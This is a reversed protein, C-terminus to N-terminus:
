QRAFNGVKSLAQTYLISHSNFPLLPYSFYFLIPPTIGTQVGLNSMSCLTSCAVLIPIGSKTEFGRGTQM